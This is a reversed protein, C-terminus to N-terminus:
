HAKLAAAAVYGDIERRVRAKLVQSAFSADVGTRALAALGDTSLGLLDHAIRYETNLTTDFMGPDDSGLTVRVGAGVLYLLPHEGM